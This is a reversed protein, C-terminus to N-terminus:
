LINRRGDVGFIVSLNQCLCWRRLLSLPRFSISPDPLSELAKGVLFHGPTLPELADEEAPLPALPRSNLCAEIQALVTSMEEFTLKVDSIIRKLHRKMSKVAAEWLGGFHPAQEPTFKWVINQASCFESIVAETKQQKLFKVMERLERNAGIFNSGHDSWILTPKGRRAVFRRLAAIFADTTLDSVIELHVAKITLAVFVCIYAKVIVPKRTAGYKILIPGAYDVGVKDFVPGPTIRESPLQGLLQPRPKVSERRCVVCERAVFRVLQRCGIIHFRQSLTSM